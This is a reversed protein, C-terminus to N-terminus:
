EHCFGRGMGLSLENHLMARLIAGQETSVSDRSTQLAILGFCICMLGILIFIWVASVDDDCKLRISKSPSCLYRYFSLLNSLVPTNPNRLSLTMKDTIRVLRRM